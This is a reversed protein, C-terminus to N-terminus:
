AAGPHRRAQYGSNGLSVFERFISQVEDEDESVEDTLFDPDTFAPLMEPVAWPVLSTRMADGPLIYPIAILPPPSIRACNNFEIRM